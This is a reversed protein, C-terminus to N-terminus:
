KNLIVKGMEEFGEGTVRFLYMGAPLKNGDISFDHIGQSLIGDHLVAVNKAFSDFIEVKINQQEPLYISFSTKETFPNPYATSLRVKSGEQEVFEYIEWDNSITKPLAPYTFPDLNYRDALFDYVGQGKAQGFATAYLMVDGLLGGFHDSYTDGINYDHYCTRAAGGIGAEDTGDKTLGKFSIKGSAVLQDGGDKSLFVRFDTGDYQLQAIYVADAALPYIDDDWDPPDYAVFKREFRNWM